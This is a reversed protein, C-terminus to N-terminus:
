IHILSLVAAPRTPYTALLIALVTSWLVAMSVGELFRVLYASLLFLSLDSIFTIAGFLVASTTAVLLGVLFVSYLGFRSFNICM